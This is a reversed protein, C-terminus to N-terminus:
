VTCSVYSLVHTHFFLCDASFETQRDTQRNTALLVTICHDQLCYWYINTALKLFLHRQKLNSMVLTGWSREGTVVLRNISVLACHLILISCISLWPYALTIAMANSPGHTQFTVELAENGQLFHCCSIVPSIKLFEFNQIPLLTLQTWACSEHERKM